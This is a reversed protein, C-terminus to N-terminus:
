AVRIGAPELLLPTNVLGCLSAREADLDTWPVAAGAKVGAYEPDDVVEVDYKPRSRFLVPLSLSNVGAQLLVADLDAEGAGDDDARGPASELDAENAAAVSAAELCRCLV